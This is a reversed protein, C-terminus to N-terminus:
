KCPVDAFLGAVLLRIKVQDKLSIKAAISDTGLKFEKRNLTMETRYVHETVGAGNQAVTVDFLLTTEKKVGHMELTGAVQVKNGVKKVKNSVFTINPYKEVGFFDPSRLHSDRKENDTRISAADIEVRVKADAGTDPNGEIQVQYKEFRGPVDFLITSAEFSFYTHANDVMFTKTATGSKCDKATPELAFGHQIFPILSFIGLLIFMKLKM